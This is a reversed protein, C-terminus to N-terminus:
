ANLIIQGVTVSFVCCAVAILLLLVGRRIYRNKAHAVASLSRIRLVLTDAGIRTDQSRMRARLDALAEESFAGRSRQEPPDATRDDGAPPNWTQLRGAYSRRREVTRGALRASLPLLAGVFMLIGMVCFFAGTWWLWEVQSPLRGPKWNGALLGGAVATVLLAIAKRNARGNDGRVEALVQRIYSLTEDSGQEEQPVTGERSVDAPPTGRVIKLM